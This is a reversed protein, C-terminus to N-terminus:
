FFPTDKDKKDEGDKKFSPDTVVHGLKRLHGIFEEESFTKWNMGNWLMSPRGYRKGSKFSSSDISYWPYRDMLEINTVGFGHVRLKPNNKLIWSWVQDCHSTVGSNFVLGGLAIYPYQGSAISALDEITSGLHFTPIPRLGYEKVMFENNERTAKANGIVDLGAYTIAETYKLFECYEVINIPKGSSEASFAGCDILIDYNKKLCDRIIDPDNKFAYYSALISYPPQLTVAELEWKPTNWVAAYYKM